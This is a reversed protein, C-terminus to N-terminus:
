KNWARAQNWCRFVGSFYIQSAFWLHEVDIPENGTAGRMDCVVAKKFLLNRPPRFLKPANSV